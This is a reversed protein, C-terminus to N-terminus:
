HQCIRLDVKTLIIPNRWYKSEINGLIVNEVRRIGFSIMQSFFTINEHFTNSTLSAKEIILNDSTSRLWIIANTCVWMELHRNVLAVCMFMKM